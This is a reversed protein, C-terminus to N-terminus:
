EPPANDPNPTDISRRAGPAASWVRITQDGSASVLTDGDPSFALAYIYKTHGPLVLLEDYTDADWLRITNDDSGTAIRTEDPSFVAAYVNDSHGRLVALRAGNGADWVAATGDNSATLFRDGDPSFSAHIVADEHGSFSFLPRSTMPDMMVAAGPTADILRLGRPSAAAILPSESEFRSIVEGDSIRWVAAHWSPQDKAPNGRVALLYQGSPDFAVTKVSAAPLEFERILEFSEADWLKVKTRSTGTALRDGAPSFALCEVRAPDIKLCRESEWTSTNWLRVEGDWAASALMGNNPQFAIDYVYSRHGTLVRSGGSRTAEDLRWVRITRDAAGSVLLSTGPVFAIANVAGTHGVFRSIEASDEANWTRVSNDGGASAIVAGEADIAVSNVGGLPGTLRRIPRIRKADWLTMTSDMCSTVFRRGDTSVRISSPHFDFGGDAFSLWEGTVASWCSLGRHEGILLRADDLCCITSIPIEHPASTVVIRGSDLDWIRIRQDTYTAAVRREDPSIDMRIPSLGAGEFVRLPQLSDADWIRITGDDSLSAIRASHKLLRVQRVPGEHGHIVRSTHDDIRWIRLTNDMSGSVIFAGDRSVDLSTVPATHGALVVTSVDLRRRLYRYEWTDAAIVALDRVLRGAEVMNDSQFALQAALLTARYSRREAMKRLRSERVAISSITLTAAILVLFVFSAGAVLRRHRRSFSTMQRWLSPTGAITPEAHLFRRLDNAMASATLYRRDPAKEMAKSVIAALNGPIGTDVRSLPTPEAERILRAASEFSRGSVDFPLAGCLLEYLVVGLSFIDSRADVVEGDGSVQEPSMYALTGVFHGTETRMTYTSRETRAILSVGFDLIRPQGADNVIINAPKLDRHVVSQEHSAHAADCIIAMLEVKERVSRAGEAAWERLNRGAIFEMAIYPHSGFITEASGVGHLKAIAPHDLKALIEAERRFRAIQSPTSFASQLLKVAVRSGTECDIAEYVAGMGGVGILREVTYRGIRPPTTGAATDHRIATAVATRGDNVLFDLPASQAHGLLQEVRSLLAADNHCAARVFAEREESACNLADLFIREADLELQDPTRTVAGTWRRLWNPTFARVFM